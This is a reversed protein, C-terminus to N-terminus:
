KLILFSFLDLFIAHWFFVVVGQAIRGKQMSPAYAALVNIGYAHIGCFM